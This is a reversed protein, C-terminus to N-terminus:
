KYASNAIWDLFETKDISVQLTDLYGMEKTWDYCQVSVISGDSFNFYTSRVRSKGTKDAAHASEKNTKKANPFFEELEFSIEKKKKYCEKINNIYKITGSIGYIEYNPDNKKLHLQIDGDYIGKSGMRATFFRCSKYVGNECNYRKASNIFTISYYDLASEGLSMGEIQFDRIDNARSSTIFCLSLVIIGLLKKM